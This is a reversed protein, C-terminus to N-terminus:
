AKAFDRAQRPNVVAVVYGAAQLACLLAREYGGTAELVTLSVEFEKLRSIVREHGPADNDFHCLEGAVGLCVDFTAKAVDIGVEILKPMDKMEWEQLHSRPELLRDPEQLVVVSA